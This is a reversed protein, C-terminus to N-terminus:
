NESLVSLDRPNRLEYGRGVPHIDGQLSIYAHDRFATIILDYVSKDFEANMRKTQGDWTSVITARGDFEKPERELRVVQAEIREDLSPENRRFSQAAEILIEANELSFPFHADSIGSPRVDAWILDINIGGGNEALAAM